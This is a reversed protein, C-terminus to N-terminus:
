RRSTAPLAARTTEALVDVAARLVPREADTRWAALIKRKLAPQCRILTVGDPCPLHGLRSLLAAAVGSAVFSLVSPTTHVRCIIRPEVDHSRLTQVLWAHCATHSLWSAWPLDTVEGIQVVERQALPHDSPLALEAEDEALVRHSIGAPLPTPMNDWSELVGIDLEDRALAALTADAEGEHLTPQVKPYRELIQNFAPALLAMTATSFAGFRLPGAVDESLEELAREAQGVRQIVAAAHEALVRGASTLRLGRGSPEFLEHGAERELKGLQQSIASPTVHLAAAAAAVSGHDAVADLYRLRDVSLM